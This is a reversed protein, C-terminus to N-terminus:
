FASQPPGDDTPPTADASASRRSRKQRKQRKSLSQEVPAVPAAIPRGTLPDIPGVDPQDLQGGGTSPQTSDIEGDQGSPEDPPPPPTAPETAHRTTARNVVLRAESLRKAMEPIAAAVRPSALMVLHGDIPLVSKTSATGPEDFISGSPGGDADVVPQSSSGFAWAGALAVSTLGRNGKKATGAEAVTFQDGPRSVTAYVDKLPNLPMRAKFEFGGVTVERHTGEEAVPLVNIDDESLVLRDSSMNTSSTRFFDGHELRVPVSVWSSRDFLLKAALWNALYLLIVPLLLAVLVFLVVKLWPITTGTIPEVAFTFRLDTSESQTPDVGSVSEFELSEEFSQTNTDTFTLGEVTVEVELEATEGQALELACEGSGLEQGEFLVRVGAQGNVGSKAGSQKLSKLTVCGGAEPATADVLIFVSDTPNNEADLVRSMQTPEGILPLKPIPRVELSGLSGEWPPLEVDPASEDMRVVPKVVAFIDLGTESFTEAVDYEFTFTGNPNIPSLEVSSGNATVQIESGRVFAAGTAPEDGPTVLQVTVTSSRGVRLPLDPNQLRATLNRGFLFMSARNLAERAKGVDTSEFRVRWLGSWDGDAPLDAKVNFVDGANGLARVDLKAGNALVAADTSRLDVIEGTPSILLTRVAPDGALTLLNFARVGVSLRFTKECSSVELVSGDFEDTCTVVDGELLVDAPRVPLALSYILAGLTGAQQFEGRAPKAGCQGAVGQGVAVARILDFSDTQGLAVVVLYAGSGETIPGSRLTDALGDSDCLRGVGLEEAAPEVANSSVQFPPLIWNLEKPTGQFDIDFQGDTFWILLRCSGQPASELLELAGLEEAPRAPDSRNLWPDLAAVYDTDESRDRAAFESLQAKLQSEDGTFKQWPARAPFSRRTSTGFDAFEVFVETPEFDDTLTSLDELGDIAADLGVVRQGDPDTKTLSQSTDVLFLVSISRQERICTVLDNAPPTQAQVDSGPALLLVSQLLAVVAIIRKM